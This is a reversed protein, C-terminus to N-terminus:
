DIPLPKNMLENFNKEFLQTPLIKYCSTYIDYFNIVYKYIKTKSYCPTIKFRAM